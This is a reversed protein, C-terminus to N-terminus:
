RRRARNRTRAVTPWSHSPRPPASLRAIRYALWLIYTVAVAILVARLGPVALLTITVGTAVAILVAM